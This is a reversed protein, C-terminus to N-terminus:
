EAIFEYGNENAYTEMYSGSPAHIVIDEGFRKDHLPGDGLYPSVFRVFIEALLHVLALVVGIMAKNLSKFAVKMAIRADEKNKYIVEEDEGTDNTNKKIITMDDDLMQAGCAHCFKQTDDLETGCNKCFVIEAGKSKKGM